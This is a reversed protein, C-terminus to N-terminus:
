SLRNFATKSQKGSAHDLELCCQELQSVCELLAGQWTPSVQTMTQVFLDVIKKLLSYVWASKRYQLLRPVLIM